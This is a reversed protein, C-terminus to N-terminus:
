IACWRRTWHCLVINQFKNVQWRYCHFVRRITEACPPCSKLVSSWFYIVVFGNRFFPLDARMLFSLRRNGDGAWWFFHSDGSIRLGGQYQLSKFLVLHLIQLLLLINDHHIALKGSHHFMLLLIFCLFQHFFFLLGHCWCLYPPSQKNNLIYKGQVM